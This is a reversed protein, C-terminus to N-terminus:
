QIASKPNCHRESHFGLLMFEETQQKLGRIEAQFCLGCCEFQFYLSPELLPLLFGISLLWSGGGSVARCVDVAARQLLVSDPSLGPRFIRPFFNKLGAEWVANLGCGNIALCHTMGAIFWGEPQESKQGM